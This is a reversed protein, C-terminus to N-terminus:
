KKKRSLQTIIKKASALLGAKIYLEARSTDIAPNRSRLTNLSSILSEKTLM